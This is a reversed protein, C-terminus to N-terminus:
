ERPEFKEISYLITSSVAVNDEPLLKLGHEYASSEIPQETLLIDRNILVIRSRFDREPRFDPNASPEFPEVFAIQELPILRKGITVINMPDRRTQPQSGTDRVLCPPSM